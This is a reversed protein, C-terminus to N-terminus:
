LNNLINTLTKAIKKLLLLVLVRLSVHDALLDVFIQLSLAKESRCEIEANRKLKNRKTDNKRNSFYFLYFNWVLSTPKFPNSSSRSRTLSIKSDFNISIGFHQM